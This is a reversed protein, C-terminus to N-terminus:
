CEMLQTIAHSTYINMLSKKNKDKSFIDNRIHMYDRFAYLIQIKIIIQGFLLAIETVFYSILSCNQENKDQRFIWNENKM